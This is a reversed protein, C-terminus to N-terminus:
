RLFISIFLAAIAVATTIAYKVWDIIKANRESKKVKQVEQTAKEKNDFYDFANQTLSVVIPLHISPKSTIKIYGKEALADIEFRECMYNSVVINEKNEKELLMSLLDELNKELLKM